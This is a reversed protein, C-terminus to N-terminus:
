PGKGVLQEAFLYVGVAIALGVALVILSFAIKVLAVLLVIAVIGVVIAVLINM